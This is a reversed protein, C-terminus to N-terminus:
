NLCLRGRWQRIEVGMEHCQGKLKTEKTLLGCVYLKGTENNLEIYCEIFFDFDSIVM